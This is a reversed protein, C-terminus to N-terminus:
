HYVIRKTLPIRGKELFGHDRYLKMGAANNPEVELHLANIGLNIAQGQVFELAASGIGKNRYQEYVYLEDVFADYGFYEFSFGFTLVVYGVAKGDYRIVWVRGLNSDGAFSAMSRLATRRDFTYNNMAYFQEMMNLVTPIHEVTALRFEIM